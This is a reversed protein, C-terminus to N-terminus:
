RALICIIYLYARKYESNHTYVHTYPDIQQKLHDWISAGGWERRQDGLLENMEKYIAATVRGGGSVLFFFLLLNRKKNNM